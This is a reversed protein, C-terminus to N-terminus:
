IISFYSISSNKTSFLWVIVVVVVIVVEVVVVEVTHKVEFTPLIFGM